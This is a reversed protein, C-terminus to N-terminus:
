TPSDKKPEFTFTAYSGGRPGISLLADATTFGDSVLKQAIEKPLFGLHWKPTSILEELSLCRYEILKQRTQPSFESSDVWVEIANSDVPNHPNHTLTLKAHHHLLNLISQSPPRFRAGVIPYTLTRIKKTNPDINRRDIERQCEQRFENAASLAAGWSTATKIKNNWKHFEDILDDDTLDRIQPM